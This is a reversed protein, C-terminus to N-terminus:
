QEGSPWAHAALERQGEVAAAVAQDATAFAVFFSDGETGLEAGGHHRWASRLVQRQGDLAEAYAAGLRGLLRTSGEIDSFLLAVTGTPLQTMGADDVRVPVMWWVM